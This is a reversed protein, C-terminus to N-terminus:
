LIDRKKLEDETDLSSGVEQWQKNPEKQTSNLSLSEFGARYSLLVQHTRLAPDLEFAPIIQALFLLIEDLFKGVPVGLRQFVAHGLVEEAGGTV